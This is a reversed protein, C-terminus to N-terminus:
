TITLFLIVNTNYSFISNRQAWSCHEKIHIASEGNHKIDLNSAYGKQLNEMDSFM